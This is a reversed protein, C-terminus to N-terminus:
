NNAGYIAIPLMILRGTGGNSEPVTSPQATPTSTPSDTPTSTTPTPTYTPRDTPAETPTAIPQSTSTQTPTSTPPVPTSSPTFTATSAPTPTGILTATSTSTSTPTSTLTSTPTSTPTPTLTTTPMDLAMIEITIFSDIGLTTEVVAEGIVTADVKVQVGYEGAIRDTFQVTGQDSQNKRREEVNISRIEETLLDILLVQISRGEILETPTLQVTLTIPQLALDIAEMVDLQGYGYAYDYTARRGNPCHTMPAASPNASKILVEETRDIEGNLSPVASWLLAAAGAVHPAAMSTGSLHRYQVIGSVDTMLAASKVSVGPASIDPKPRGSVDVLVPGRSSFSAIEGNSAFAGITFASDHTAIPHEVSSCRSGSNGASAVVFQGAARMTDVVQELILSASADCGESPPCGWSNNIIDPGLDPRGDTFKNGDQPYPALFFEFCASYSSPRGLGGLMNRCGIWQADPAMGILTDSGAQGGLMTGVTHTGHGHDDCPIQADSQDCNPRNETGWVDFWHYRHDITADDTESEQWGRYKSKLLPHNWQVGTDQSAVTIGQGLYGQLHAALAGSMELGYPATQTSSVNAYETISLWRNIPRTKFSANPMDIALTGRVVPNEEVRDVDPHSALEACLTQDDIVEIMNVIYFQAYRASREDLLTVLEAQATAAHSTLAQYLATAREIRTGGTLNTERLLDFGNLQDTLIVLCSPDALTSRSQSPASKFQSSEQSSEQSIAPISIGIFTLLCGM